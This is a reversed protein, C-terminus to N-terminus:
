FERGFDRLMTELQGWAGRVKLDVESDDSKKRYDRLGKTFDKLARNIEVKRQRVENQRFLVTRLLDRAVEDEEVTGVIAFAASVNSFRNIARKQMEYMAEIDLREQAAEKEDMLNAMAAADVDLDRVRLNYEEELEMIRQEARKVEDYAVDLESKAEEILHHRRTM